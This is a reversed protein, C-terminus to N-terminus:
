CGWQIAPRLLQQKSVVAGHRWSRIRLFFIAPRFDTVSPGLWPGRRRLLIWSWLSAPFVTYADVFSAFIPIVRVFNVVRLQLATCPMWPLKFMYRPLPEGEHRVVDRLVLRLLISGVVEIDARICIGGRRGVMILVGFLVSKVEELSHGLLELLLVGGGVM